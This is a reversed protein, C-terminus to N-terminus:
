PFFRNFRPLVELAVFDRIEVITEFTETIGSIDGGFTISIPPNPDFRVKDKFALPITVIHCEDTAHMRVQLQEEASLGYITGEVAVSNAPIRRHKDLNCLENLRWLPHSKFADGRHYPQLAKIECFAEDPVGSVQSGFRELSKRTLVEVIPFQTHSPIGNIRALAWITQDLAARINYIADGVMLCIEAPINNVKMRFVYQKQETDDYSSLTYAKAPTCFERTAADLSRLHREAWGIKSYPDAM